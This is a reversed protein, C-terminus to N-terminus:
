EIILSDHNYLLTYYDVSESETPIAQFVSFYSTFSLSLSFFNAIAFFDRSKSLQCSLKHICHHPSKNVPLRTLKNRFAMAMGDTYVCSIITPAQVLNKDEPLKSVKVAKWSCFSLLIAAKMTCCKDWKMATIIRLWLLEYFVVVLDGSVRDSNM